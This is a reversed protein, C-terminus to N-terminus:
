SFSTNIHLTLGNVMQICTSIIIDRQCLWTDLFEYSNVSLGRWTGHQFVNANGGRPGLQLCHSKFPICLPSSKHHSKQRNLLNNPANLFVHFILDFLLTLLDTHNTEALAKWGRKKQCKPSSFEQNHPGGQPKNLLMRAETVLHWCSEVLQPLWFHKRANGWGRQPCAGGHSFVM